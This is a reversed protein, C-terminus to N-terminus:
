ILEKLENEDKSSGIIINGTSDLTPMLCPACSESLLQSIRLHFKDIKKPVIVLLKNEEPIKMEKQLDDFIVAIVTM